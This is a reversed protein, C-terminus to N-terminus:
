FGTIAVVSSLPLDQGGKPWHSTPAERRLTDEGPHQVSLFLTDEKPTFAPGTLESGVPGSAFQFADGANPGQTPVMFFGNNGYWAHSPTHIYDKGCDCAVWLNGKKDFLLNDPCSLGSQPGGALFIEYAFSEGEPNDGTEVLRVIQGFFNGHEKNNTLALYVSGDLPHIECDEPRDLPTAGLAKAARPADQVVQALNKFGNETLVPNRKLDLPLWKGTVFNAAYLTGEEFLKRNEARSASAKYTGHSVYKYFYQDVRDEGQYVVLKGTPGVTVAANEHRFRGLSSHKQPPLEGLPDVEIVWGFHEENIKTDAWTAWGLQAPNGSPNMNQFNEECSLVTNWPTTGGSCNSLTGKAVPLISNMPGTMEFDPYLACFRKTYKSGSVRIWKEKTKQIEIVSGGLALKEAEIVKKPKPLEGAYNREFLPNVSEHNSWLLGRSTVAKGLPFYALFDNDSGFTEAGFPGTSGLPDGWSAVLDYKFGKPLLLADERSPSLPRFPLVDHRRKPNAPLRASVKALSIEQILSYTGIGVYTLFQRRNWM